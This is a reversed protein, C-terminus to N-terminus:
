TTSGIVSFAAGPDYPMRTRHDNLQAHLVAFKGIRNNNKVVAIRVTNIDDVSNNDSSGYSNDDNYNDTDYDLEHGAINHLRRRDSSTVLVAYGTKICARCFTRGQFMSFM